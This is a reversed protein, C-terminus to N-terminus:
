GKDINKALTIVSNKIESSYKINACELEHFFEDDFWKVNYVFGSKTNGAVEVVTIKSNIEYSVSEQALQAALHSIPISILGYSCNGVSSTFFEAAGSWGNEKFGGQPAAGIYSNILPSPVAKFEFALKLDGLRKRMGTSEDSEIAKFQKSQSAVTKKINMLEQADESTSQIYGLAHRQKDAREGSQILEKSINLTARPAITVGSAPVLIGAAQLLKVNEKEHVEREAPTLSYALTSATLLGVMTIKKYM